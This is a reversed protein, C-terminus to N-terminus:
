KGKGNKQGNKSTSVKDGKLEAELAKLSNRELIKIFKEHHEVKQELSKIKSDTKSKDRFYFVVATVAAGTCPLAITVIATTPDL